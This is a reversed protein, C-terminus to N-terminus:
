LIRNLADIGPKVRTKPTIEQKEIISGDRPSFYATPITVTIKSHPLYLIGTDGFQFEGATNEGVTESNKINAFSKVTGECASACKADILVQLHGTFPSNTRTPKTQDFNFMEFGARNERQAMELTDIQKLYLNQLYDPVQENRRNRSIMQLKFYNAWLAASEPTRSSARFLFPSPLTIGAVRSALWLGMEDSGGGNGRLDLVINKYSVWKEVASKFGIWSPDDAADFHSISLLGVTGLRASHMSKFSWTREPESISNKGVSGPRASERRANSQGSSAQASIHSDPLELLIQDIKELLDSQKAPVAIEGPLDMIARLAKAFKNAPLYERGSYGTRMAYRLLELDSRIALENLRAPLDSNPNEPILLDQPTPDSLAASNGAFSTSANKCGVLLGLTLLLTLFETM